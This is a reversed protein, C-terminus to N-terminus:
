EGKSEEDDEHSSLSYDLKTLLPIQKKNDVTSTDVSNRRKINKSKDVVIVFGNDERLKYQKFHKDTSKFQDINDDDDESGSNIVGDSYKL